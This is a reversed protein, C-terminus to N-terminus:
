DELWHHRMKVQAQLKEFIKYLGYMTRDSFIFENAISNFRSQQALRQILIQGERTYHPYQGFDFQESQMPLAIWQTFPKLTNEYWDKEIPDQYMGLQHYTKLVAQADNRIFGRLLQPLANVFANSLQKVCGFDILSISGEAHFLYNGPNPDAHIRGLTLVSYVFVDYLAQAARNRAAQSPHTALWAELHLGGLKQTTLVRTSSWQPYVQAISVSPLVLKQKFWATQEAELGYDLEELLRARIEQLSQLIIAKNPLPLTNLLTSLLNLDNEMAVHIGPYQIKVAVETHNPLTAAHVQGLSAAAFAQAQFQSFLQEPTQQFQELLVKRVLVRNLSPVQHYSKALEQQYRKPLFDTEMSLMQAAKLATGRLQTLTNFLLKANEDDVSAQALTQRETSLFPRKAQQKLQKFGIKVTTSGLIGARQWTGEPLTDTM